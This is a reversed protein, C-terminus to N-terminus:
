IEFDETLEELISAFQMARYDKLLKKARSVINELNETDESGVKEVWERIIMKAVDRGPKTSLIFKELDDYTKFKTVDVRFHNILENKLVDWNVNVNWKLSPRSQIYLELFDALNKYNGAITVLEGVKNWETPNESHNWGLRELLNRVRDISNEYPIPKDLQDLPRLYYRVVYPIEEYSYNAFTPLYENPTDNQVQSTQVQEKQVQGQVQNQVQSYNAGIKAGTNASTLNAGIKASSLNASTVQENQVQSLNAGSLNAGTVQELNDSQVQSQVQSFNQVQYTQVQSTQVQSQNAGIKASSLNAGSKAGIKAGSFNAGSSNAGSLNAGIDNLREVDVRLVTFKGKEETKIIGNEKLQKLYYLFTRKPIGTEEIL